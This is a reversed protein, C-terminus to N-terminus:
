LRPVWHTICSALGSPPVPFARCLCPLTVGLPLCISCSHPRVLGPINLSDSFCIALSSVWSIQPPLFAQEMLGQCSNDNAKDWSPLFCNPLDQDSKTKAAVGLHCRSLLTLLLFLLKSIWSAEPLAELFLKPLLSILLPGSSNVAM